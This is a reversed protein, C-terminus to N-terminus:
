AKTISTYTMTGTKFIDAPLEMGQTENLDKAFAALTQANVTEQVLGGHGNAKLWDIGVMKDLMSCSWRNTLSVRGVGEVTITRVAHERMVDPVQKYSLRERMEDLAERAETIQEMAKRLHDFHRIVEIHDRTAVVAATDERVAGAVGVLYGCVFTLRELTEPKM